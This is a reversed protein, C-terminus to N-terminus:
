ILVQRLLISDKNMVKSLGNRMVLRLLKNRNFKILCTCKKMIILNIKDNQILFNNNLQPTTEERLNSFDM